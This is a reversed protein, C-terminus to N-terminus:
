TNRNRREAKVRTYFVGDVFASDRGILQVRKKRDTELAQKAAELEEETHPRVAVELFKTILAFKVLRCIEKPIGRNQMQRWLNTPTHPFIKHCYYCRLLWVPFQGKKGPIHEVVECPHSSSHKHCEPCEISIHKWM